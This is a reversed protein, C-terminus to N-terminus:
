LFLAQLIVAEKIWQRDPCLPFFVLSSGASPLKEEPIHQHKLAPQFM